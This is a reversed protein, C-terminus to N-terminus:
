KISNAQKSSMTYIDVFVQLRDFYQQFVAMLIISPFACAMGCRFCNSCSTHHQDTLLSYWLWDGSLPPTACFIPFHFSPDSFSLYFFVNALVYITNIRQWSQLFVLIMYVFLLLLLCLSFIINDVNCILTKKKEKESFPLLMNMLVLITHCQCCYRCNCFVNNMEYPIQVSQWPKQMMQMIKRACFRSSQFM